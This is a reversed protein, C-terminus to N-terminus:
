PAGETKRKKPPTTGTEIKALLRKLGAPCLDKDWKGVQEMVADSRRCRQVIVEYVEVGNATQFVDCVPAMAM